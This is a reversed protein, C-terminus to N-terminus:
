VFFFKVFIVFFKTLGISRLNRQANVKITEHRIRKMTAADFVMDIDCFFLLEDPGQSLGGIQLGKGRSFEGEEKILEVRVNPLQKELAYLDSKLQNFSAEHADKSGNPFDVIVLNLVEGEEKVLREFIALFRHM